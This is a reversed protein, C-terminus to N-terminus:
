VEVWYGNTIVLQMSTLFPMYGTHDSSFLKYTRSSSLTLNERADAMEVWHDQVYNQSKYERYFPSWLLERVSNSRLLILYADPVNSFCFTGIGKSHNGDFNVKSM